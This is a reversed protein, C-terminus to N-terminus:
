LSNSCRVISSYFEHKNSNMVIVYHSICGSWNLMLGHRIFLDSLHFVKENELNDYRTFYPLPASFFVFSSHQSGNQRFLTSSNYRIKSWQYLGLFLFSSFVLQATARDATASIFLINLWVTDDYRERKASQWGKHFCFCVFLGWCTYNWVADVVFVDWHIYSIQNLENGYNIVENKDTQSWFGKHCLFFPCLSFYYTHCHDDFFSIVVSGHLPKTIWYDLSRCGVLSVAM